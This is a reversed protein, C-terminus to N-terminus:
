VARKLIDEVEDSKLNHEILHARLQEKSGFGRGCIECIYEDVDDISHSMKIAIDILIV